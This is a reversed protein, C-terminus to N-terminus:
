RHAGSRLARLCEMLPSQLDQPTVYAVPAGLRHKLPLRGKIQKTAAVLPGELQGGEAQGVHNADERSTRRRPMRVRGWDSQVCQSGLVADKWHAPRYAADTVPWRVHAHSSYFQCGQLTCAEKGALANHSSLVLMHEAQCAELPVKVCFSHQKRQHGQTLRSEGQKLISRPQCCHVRPLPGARDEM